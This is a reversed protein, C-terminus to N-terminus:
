YVASVTHNVLQYQGRFPPFYFFCCDRPRRTHFTNCLGASSCCVRRFEYDYIANQSPFLRPDFREVASAWTGTKLVFAFRYPLIIYLFLSMLTM